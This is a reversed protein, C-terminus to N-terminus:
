LSVEINPSHEKRKVAANTLFSTAIHDRSVDILTNIEKVDRAGMDLGASHIDICNPGAPKKEKPVKVKKEKKKKKKGGEEEKETEKSDDKEEVGEKLEIQEKEPTEGAKEAQM